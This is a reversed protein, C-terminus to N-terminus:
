GGSDCAGPTYSEAPLQIFCHLFHGKLTSVGKKGTNQNQAIEQASVHVFVSLSSSFTYEASFNLINLFSLFLCDQILFLLNQGSM